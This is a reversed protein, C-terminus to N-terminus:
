QFSFHKVSILETALIAYCDNENLNLANLNVLNEPVATFAANTYGIDANKGNAVGDGNLTGNIVSKETSLMRLNNLNLM